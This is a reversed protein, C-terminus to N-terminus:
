ASVNVVNVHLFCLCKHETKELLNNDDDDDYHDDDYYLLLLTAIGFLSSVWLFFVSKSIHVLFSYFSAFFFMRSACVWELNVVCEVTEVVKEIKAMNNEDLCIYSEHLFPETRLYIWIRTYMGTISIAFNKHEM